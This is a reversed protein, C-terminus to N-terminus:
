RSARVTVSSAQVLQAPTITAKLTSESRRLGFQPYFAFVVILAVIPVLVASVRWPFLLALTPHGTVAQAITLVTALGFPVSLTLFLTTRARRRPWRLM